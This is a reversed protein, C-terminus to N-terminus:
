WRSDSVSVSGVRRELTLPADQDLFLWCSRAWSSSSCTPSGESAWSSFKASLPCTAASCPSLMASAPLSRSCSSSTCRAGQVLEVGAGVAQALGAALGDAVSPELGHGRGPEADM